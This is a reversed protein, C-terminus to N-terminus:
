RRRKREINIILTFTGVHGGFRSKRTTTDDRDSSVKLRKGFASDKSTLKKKVSNKIGRFNVLDVRSQARDKKVRIIEGKNRGMDDTKAYQVELQVIGGTFNDSKITRAVAESVDESTGAPFGIAELTKGGLNGSDVSISIDFGRGFADSTGRGRSTQSLQPQNGGTGAGFDLQGGTRRRSRGGGVSSVSIGKKKAIDMIINLAGRADPTYDPYKKGTADNLKRSMAPWDRVANLADDDDPFIDSFESTLVARWVRDTDPGWIGDQKTPQANIGESAIIANLATQMRDVSSRYRRKGSRGSISSPRDLDSGGLKKQDEDPKKGTVMEYLSKIANAFTDTAFLAGLLGGAIAVPTGGIFFGLTAGGAAALGFKLIKGISLENDGSFLNALFGKGTDIANEVKNGKAIDSYHEILRTLENIFDLSFFTTNSIKSCPTVGLVNLQKAREKPNTQNIRDSFRTYGTKIDAFKSRLLLPRALTNTIIGQASKNFSAETREKLDENYSNKINKYFSLILSEGGSNVKSQIDSAKIQLYLQDSEFLDMAAQRTMDPELIICQGAKLDEGEALEYGAIGLYQVNEYKAGGTVGAGFIGEKWGFWEGSQKRVKGTTNDVVYNMNLEAVGNYKINEFLIKGFAKDIKWWHSAPYENLVSAISKVAADPDFDNTVLIDYIEQGPIKAEDDTIGFSIDKIPIGLFDKIKEPDIKDSDAQQGDAITLVTDLQGDIKKGLKESLEGIQQKEEESATGAEIKKSLAQFQQYDQDQEPDSINADEGESATNIPATIKKNKIGDEMADSQQHLPNNPFLLGTIQKSLNESEALQIGEAWQQNKYYWYGAGALAALAAPVSIYPNSLAAGVEVWGGPPMFKVAAALIAGIATFIGANKLTKMNELSKVADDTADSQSRLSNLTQVAKILDQANELSAFQKGIDFVSGEDQEHLMYKQATSYRLHGDIILRRRIIDRIETENLHM